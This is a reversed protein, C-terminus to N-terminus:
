TVPTVRPARPTKAIREGWPTGNTRAPANGSRDRDKGWRGHHCSRALNAHQQSGRSRRPLHALWSRDFTGGSAAPLVTGTWWCPWPGDPLVGSSMSAGGM